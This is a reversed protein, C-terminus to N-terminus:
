LSEINWGSTKLQGAVFNQKIGEEIPAFAAIIGGTKTPEVRLFTIIHKRLVFMGLQPQFFFRSAIRPILEAEDSTLEKGLIGWYPGLLFPFLENWYRFSFRKVLSNLHLVKESGDKPSLSEYVAQVKLFSTFDCYLSVPILEEPSQPFLGIDNPELSPKFFRKILGV